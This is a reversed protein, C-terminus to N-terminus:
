VDKGGNREVFLDFRSLAEFTNVRKVGDPPPVSFVRKALVDQQMWWRVTDGSITRGKKQQEAIDETMEVYFKDGIANTYPDFAVAGISVVVASSATDLTELDLMIHNM